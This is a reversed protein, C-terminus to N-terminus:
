TLNALSGDKIDRIFADWESPTFTLMPGNPDKSDRVLFLRDADVKHEIEAQPDATLTVEVCSGGKGGSLTSRRWVGVEVCIVAVGYPSRTQGSWRENRVSCESRSAGSALPCATRWNLPWIEGPQHGDFNRTHGSSIGT